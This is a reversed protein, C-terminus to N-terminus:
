SAFNPVENIYYETKKIDYQQYLSIIRSCSEYHQIHCIAQSKFLISIVKVYFCYKQAVQITVM